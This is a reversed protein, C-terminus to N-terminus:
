HVELPFRKQPSKLIHDNISQFQNHLYLLLQITQQPQCFAHSASTEYTHM